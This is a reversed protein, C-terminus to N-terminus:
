RVIKNKRKNISIPIPPGSKQSEQAFTSTFTGLMIPGGAPSTSWVKAPHDFKWYAYLGAPNAVAIQRSEEEIEDSSLLRQSWWKFGAFRMQNGGNANTNNGIAFQGPVVGSDTMTTQFITCAPRGVNKFYLKATSTTGSLVLATFYWTSVVPIFTTASTNQGGANDYWAWTLKNSNGVDTSLSFVGNYPAASSNWDLIQRTNAFAIVRWFFCITGDSLTPPNGIANFGGFIYGATTTSSLEVSTGPM